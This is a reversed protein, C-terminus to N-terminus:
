LADADLRLDGEASRQVHLRMLDPNESAEKPLSFVKAQVWEAPLPGYSTPMPGFPLAEGAANFAALDSLDNKQIIRYVEENLNIAYAGEGQADIPWQQAYDTPASAAAATALVAGLMLYRLKM